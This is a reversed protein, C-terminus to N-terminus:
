ITIFTCTDLCHLRNLEFKTHADYTIKKNITDIKTFKPYVACTGELM